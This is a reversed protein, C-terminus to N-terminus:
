KLPWPIFCLRQPVQRAAPGLEIIKQYLEFGKERGVAFTRFNESSADFNGFIPRIEFFNPTM